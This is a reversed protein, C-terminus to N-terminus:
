LFVEKVDSESYVSAEEEMDRLASALSFDSWSNDDQREAESEARVLLYEVFNLVEAQFSQPLKDVQEQIKISLAM